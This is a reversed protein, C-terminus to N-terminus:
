SKWNIEYDAVEKAPNATKAKQVAKETEKRILILLFHNTLSVHELIEGISWGGSQPRYGALEDGTNFWVNLATFANELEQRLKDLVDNIM